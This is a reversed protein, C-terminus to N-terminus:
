IWLGGLITSVGLNSSKLTGENDRLESVMGGEVEKVSVPNKDLGGGM